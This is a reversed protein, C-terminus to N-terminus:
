LLYIRTEQKEDTMFVVTKASKM